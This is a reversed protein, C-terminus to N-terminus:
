VCSWCGATPHGTLNVLSLVYRNVLMRNQSCVTFCHFHLCYTLSRVSRCRLLAKVCKWQLTLTLSWKDYMFVTWTIVQLPVVVTPLITDPTIIVKNAAANVSPRADFIFLKHSQANADMIAQLLKEDDKCRKGSVGSMPQSCRVVAAQSEPHLWSLVQAHVCLRVCNLRICCLRTQIWFLSLFFRQM